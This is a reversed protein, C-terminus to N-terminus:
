SSDGLRHCLTLITMGPGPHNKYLGEGYTGLTIENTDSPKLELQIPVSSHYGARTNLSSVNIPPQDNVIIYAEGAATYRHADM